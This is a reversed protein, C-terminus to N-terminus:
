GKRGLWRLAQPWFSAVFIPGLLAAADGAYLVRMSMGTISHCTSRLTLTQLFEGSAGPALPHGPHPM